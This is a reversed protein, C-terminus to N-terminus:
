HRILISPDRIFIQTATDAGGAVGGTFIRTGAPITFTNFTEATAGAPLNLAVSASVPSHIQSVTDATTLFRGEPASVGGSYRYATMPEELVTSTYKADSFTSAVESPLTTAAQQAIGIGATGVISIGADIGNAWGRPVGMEQLGTSTFTDTSEGSFAKRLGAQFQDLGHLGVGVGAVAGIGTEATVAAFGFGAGAEALGGLAQLGGFFRNWFGGDKSLGLPDLFSLPNNDCYSYLNLGGLLRIPDAQIFRGLVPDYHRARCYFLGTEADYERGAFLFRNGLSSVYQQVRGFADPVYQEVISGSSGSLAVVTGGSDTHYFYTNNSVVLALPEDVSFGHIYKRVLNGNGDYEAILDDGSYSFNLTQGQVTKASRRGLADYTYTAAVGGAVAHVLRNQVDYDLTRAGDSRLNGNADYTYAAGSVNTYQNLANVLYQLSGNQGSTRRNGLKDYGYQANGLPFGAPYTVNTVQYLADYSYATTGPTPGGVSLRSLVSGSDSYSYNFQCLLAQSAPNTHILNTLRNAWDFGYRVSVGNGYTMQQRRGLADYGIQAVLNNTNYYLSAPRNLNDYTYSVTSADPYVLKTRRGARDYEYGVPRGTADTARLLRGLVDYSYGLVGNEDALGLLRSGIDYQFANTRGDPFAVYVLRQLSDYVNTFVQGARTQRTLVNGAKDYTLVEASLDPYINTVAREFPDRVYRTVNTFADSVIKLNGNLDYSSTTVNTQADITQWPLDREDFTYRRALGNADQALVRNGNADYAFRVVNGMDNTVSTVRDLVDYATSVTQWPHTVDGTQREIRSIKGNASYYTRAVYNFPAANTAQIVRNLNDYQFTTTNGSPDTSSLANGLPDYTFSNTASQSTGFAVIRRLFFGTPPDYEYKTVAGVANTEMAVQGYDDYAFSVVANSGGVAPCIIRILHGNTTGIESQEYDYVYTTTNGNADVATKVRNFRPEYTSSTVIDQAFNTTDTAKRRAELLNGLGDFTQALVNSAPFVAKALTNNTNYTYQTLYFSPDSSRLGSTYQKLTLVNGNTDFTREIRYGNGNTFVRVTDSPYGFANTTPGFLQKIIRGQSDYQNVLYTQGAPDTISQLRFQNTASYSYRTTQGNPFGPLTPTTVSLLLGRGGQDYEYSWARGTFDVANTVRGGGDYLFDIYRGSLMSSHAIEIRSMRYDRAVLIANTYHSYDSVANIPQKGGPQYTFLLQNGNPDRIETLCGDSNYFRQTGHKHRLLYSGDPSRSLTDYCGRPAIYTGNGVNVFEDRDSNNRRLLLNGNTALVLIRENLVLNWGRGFMGQYTSGSRYVRTVGLPMRGVVSFDTAALNIQGTFLDVPDGASGQCNQDGYPNWPQNPDSASTSNGNGIATSGNDGWQDYASSGVAGALLLLVGATVRVFRLKVLKQISEKM